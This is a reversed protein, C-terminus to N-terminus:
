GIPVSYGMGKVAFGIGHLPMARPWVSMSKLARRRLVCVEIFHQMKNSRYSKYSM